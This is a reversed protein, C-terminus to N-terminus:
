ANPGGGLNLPRSMRFTIPKGERWKKGEEYERKALAIRERWDPDVGTVSMALAPEASENGSDGGARRATPASKFRTM